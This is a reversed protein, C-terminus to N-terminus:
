HKALFTLVTTNYAQPNGVHMAHSAGPISAREQNPLCRELEDVILHFLKPSLEGTLLLARAQIRGVEECSLAPLYDLASMEAKMERANDMLNSRAPPPFQEFGGEGIVGDIFLRVGQEMDGSQFARRSPDLAGTVFKELEANGGPVHELWPLVPPEGLTLTRWTLTSLRLSYRPILAM